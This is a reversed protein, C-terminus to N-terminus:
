ARGTLARLLGKNVYLMERGVKQGELLGVRELERLYESATQRKALGAESLHSIRVYPQSYVLEVLEKSYGKRMGTRATEVGQALADRVSLITEVTQRATEEVARLMFITWDEWEGRETVARLLQYYDNKNEIVFRSLYLVPVRLLGRSVLYLINLVRGTRGNGDPYPHIAEFQYHGVAMKILPDTGDRAELYDAVNDLLGQIRATGVPPTYVVEGTRQNAIQCQGPRLNISGEKITRAIELFLEPGLREGKGLREYGHWLAEGYRLVEKTPADTQSALEGLARYLEDNTTVVNEIESSLKAEQVLISRLLVTQNPILDGAWRLEALASNATIAAKLTARTEVEARPPLPSLENYPKTPAYGETTVM